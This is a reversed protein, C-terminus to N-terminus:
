IHGRDIVDENALLSDDLLPDNVRLTKGDMDNICVVDVDADYVQTANAMQPANVDDLADYLRNAEDIGEAEVRYIRKHSILVEIDYLPM